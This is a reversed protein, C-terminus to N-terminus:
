PVVFTNEALIWERGQPDTYREARKLLGVTGVMMWNSPDVYVGFTQSAVQYQGNTQNIVLQAKCQARGQFWFDNSDGRSFVPTAMTLYITEGSRVRLQVVDSRTISPRYSTAWASDIRMRLSQDPSFARGLQSSKSVGIISGVFPYNDAAIPLSNPPNGPAWQGSVTQDLDISAEIEPSVDKDKKCGTFLLAITAFGFLSRITMVNKM